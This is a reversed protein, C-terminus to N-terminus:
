YAAQYIRIYSIQYHEINNRKFINREENLFFFYYIEFESLFGTYQVLKGFRKHAIVILVNSSRPDGCSEGKEHELMRRKIMRRKGQLSIWEWM